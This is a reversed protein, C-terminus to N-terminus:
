RTFVVVTTQGPTASFGLIRLEPPNILDDAFNIAMLPARIKALGPGPDYDWSSEVAYLTDNADMGRLRRAVEQEFLEDAAKLTPGAKQRTVPNGSMLALMQAATRGGTGHLILVANAVKGDKGRVPRGLTRYHMNLEPIVQGSAFKFDKVVFDGTTLNGQGAVRSMSALLIVAVLSFKAVNKM